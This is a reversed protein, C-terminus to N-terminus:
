TTIGAGAEDLIKAVANSISKSGYTSKEINVVKIGSAHMDKRDSDDLIYNTVIVPLVDGFRERLKDRLILMRVNTSSPLPLQPNGTKIEIVATQTGQRIVLDPRFGDANIETLSDPFSQRLDDAIRKEFSPEDSPAM